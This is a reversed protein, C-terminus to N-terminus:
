SHQVFAHVRLGHPRLPGLRGSSSSRRECGTVESQTLDPSGLAWSRDGADWPQRQPVDGDRRESLSHNALTKWRFYPGGLTPRPWSPALQRHGPKEKM